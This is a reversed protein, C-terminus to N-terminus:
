IGLDDTGKSKRFYCREIGYIYWKKIIYDHPIKM